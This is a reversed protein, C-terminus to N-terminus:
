ATQETQLAVLARIAQHAAGINLALNSNEAVM